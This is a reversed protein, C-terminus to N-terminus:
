MSLQQLSITQYLITSHFIWSRGVKRSRDERQAQFPTADYEDDSDQYKTIRELILNIVDKHPDPILNLVEILPIVVEIGDPKQLLNVSRQGLRGSSGQFFFHLYHHQSSDKLWDRLSLQKRKWPPSFEIALNFQITLSLLLYKLRILLRRKKFRMTWLSQTVVHRSPLERDHRITIAHATAYEKPNQIAKGPLQSPNNSVSTTVPNGELYRMRTSLSKFKSNLDNFNCDVKNNLEAM